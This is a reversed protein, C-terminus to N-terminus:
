PMADRANVCLNLLVQHIQTADAKITWLEVPGHREVAINKPFTEHLINEIEKLLHRVQVSLHAGSMGRSFTLLQRVIGAGRQAGQEVLSIIHQDKPQKLTERLIGASMLMPTLINNLDHAVGAALTGIAEMRQAHLFREELKRREMALRIAPGLRALRDKLLYDAAGERMAAVAVEEGMTGSVLIFPIDIRRERLLRLARDGGFQPIEYDSLIIDWKKDLATLYAAETDVRRWEPAFGARRLERVLLEADDPSDEVILVQLNEPAVESM